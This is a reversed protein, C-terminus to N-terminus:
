LANRKLTKGRAEKLWSMICLTSNVYHKIYTKVFKNNM